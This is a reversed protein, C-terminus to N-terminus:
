NNYYHQIESNTEEAWSYEKMYENHYEHWYTSDGDMLHYYDCDVKEKAIRLTNWERVVIDNFGAKELDKILNRSLTSVYKAANLDDPSKELVEEIIDKTAVPYGQKDVLYALLQKSQKKTFRINKGERDYVEFNGFTRVKLLVDSLYPMSTCAVKTPTGNKSEIKTFIVRIMGGERRSFIFEMTSRDSMLKRIENSTSVRKLQPWQHEPVQDYIYTRFLDTYSGIFPIHGDVNEPRLKYLIYLDKELDIMFMDLYRQTLYTMIHLLNNRYLERHGERFGVLQEYQVMGQKDFVNLLEDQIDEIMYNYYQNKKSYDGARTISMRVWKYNNGIKRRYYASMQDNGADFYKEVIEADTLSQLITMDDPHAQTEEILWSEPLIHQRSYERKIYNESPRQYVLSSTGTSHNYKIIKHLRHMYSNMSDEFNSENGPLDRRYILVNKGSKGYDKPKSVMLRTWCTEGHMDRRFAFLVGSENGDCYARFADPNLLIDFKYIDEPHVIEMDLYRRLFRQADYTKGPILRDNSHKIIHFSYDELDFRLVTEHTDLFARYVFEADTM